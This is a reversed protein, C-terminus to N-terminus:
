DGPAQIDVKILRIRKKYPVEWYEDTHLEGLPHWARYWAHHDRSTKIRTIAFADGTKTGQGCLVPTEVNLYDDYLIDWYVRNVLKYQCDKELLNLPLQCVEGVDMTAVTKEIGTLLEPRPPATLAETSGTSAAVPLPREKIMVAVRPLIAAVFFLLGMAAVAQFLSKVSESRM